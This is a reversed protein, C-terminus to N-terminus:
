AWPAGNVFKKILLQILWGALIGVGAGGIIDTPWHIGAAVRGFGISLAALFFLISTKPYYYYVAMAIAFAASAHGSPFSAGTEHLVLQHVDSLVQFPRLRNYFFRIVEAFVFRALVAAVTAHIAVYLNKRAYMRFKSFLPLAAVILVAALMLYWLYVARFIIVTDYFRSIGAWSNFWRFLHLDLQNM